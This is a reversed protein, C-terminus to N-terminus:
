ADERENLANHQGRLEWLRDVDYHPDFISRGRYRFAARAEHEEAALVAMFATQVLESKTMHESLRWKRGTWLLPAQTVNCVGVCRVQLYRDSQSGHVTLRWGPKYTIDAIISHAEDLTM